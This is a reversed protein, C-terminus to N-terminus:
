TLFQFFCLFEVVWVAGVTQALFDFSQGFLEGVHNSQVAAVVFRGRV